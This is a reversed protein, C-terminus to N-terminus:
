SPELNYRYAARVAIAERVESAVDTRFEERYTPDTVLYVTFSLAAFTALFGAVRLLQETVAMSRGGLSWSLLVNPEEGVWGAITDVPMALTGFITLFTGVALGVVVVQLTRAVLGVLAVNVYEKRSLDAPPPSGEDPIDLREAPTGAVLERVDSWADLSAAVAVDGPLRTVVFGGGVVFFLGLTLWYAVGDLDGLVEWVEAALFLFTITVLLLPLARSLVSGLSDVMAVARTGAWRLIPVLAYSTAFYVVLLTAVGIVMAKAADAWQGFMLVPIEPGVVFVFLEWPGVETPRGFAPRRRVINTVSWTALLVAVVLVLALVNFGVGEDLDLAYLGRLVYLVLLLPLSRTWIDQRADYHEIFHPVGRRVFWHECEALNSTRPM